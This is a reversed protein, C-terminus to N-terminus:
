YWRWRVGFYYRRCWSSSEDALQETTLVSGTLCERATVLNGGELHLMGIHFASEAVLEPLGMEAASQFAALLEHEKAKQKDSAVGALLLGRVALLKYGQKRALQLARKSYEQAKPKEDMSTHVAALENLVQCRQYLTGLGETTELGEELRRLKEPDSVDPM